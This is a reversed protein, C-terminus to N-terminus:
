NLHVEVVPICAARAAALGTPSDEYVLARDPTLRFHALVKEYIEPDPKGHAVSEGALILDFDDIAGIHLLAARLNRERATSAIATKGGTARHARITSLLSTNPRLLDFHRPYAESKADRIRRRQEPDHIGLHDMFSDFRLGLYQRYDAETLVIGEPALADRYAAYNAGFTDALTGDFDSIILEYAM